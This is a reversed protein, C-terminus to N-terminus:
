TEITYTNPSTLWDDNTHVVLGIYATPYGPNNSSFEFLFGHKIILYTPNGILDGITTVSSTLTYNLQPIVFHFSYTEIPYPSGIVFDDPRDQPFVFYGTLSDTTGAVTASVDWTTSSANLGPAFLAMILLAISTNIIHNVYTHRHYNFKKL